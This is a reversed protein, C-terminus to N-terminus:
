AGLGLSKEADSKAWSMLLDVDTNMASYYCGYKRLLAEVRKWNPARYPKAALSKQNRVPEMELLGVGRLLSYAILAARIEPAVAHRSHFDMTEGWEKKFDKGHAKCSRNHTRMSFGERRIIRQEAALSKIKIKLQRLRPNTAVTQPSLQVAARDALTITETIKAMTNPVGLLYTKLLRVISRSVDYKVWWPHRELLGVM